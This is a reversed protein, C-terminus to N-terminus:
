DDYMMDADSLLVVRLNPGSHSRARLSPLETVDGGGTGGAAEDDLAAGGFYLYQTKITNTNIM